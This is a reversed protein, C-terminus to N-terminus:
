GTDNDRIMVRLIVRCSVGESLTSRAAAVGLALLWSSIYPTSTTTTTTDLELGPHEADGLPLLEDLHQLLTHLPELLHPPAGAAPAVCPRKTATMYPFQIYASGVKCIHMYISRTHLTFHHRQAYM